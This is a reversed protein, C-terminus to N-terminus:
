KWRGIAIYGVTQRSQMVANQRVFKLKQIGKLDRVVNSLITMNEEGTSMGGLQVVPYDIFAVPFTFPNTLSSRYWEDSIKEDFDLYFYNKHYCILTGDAFKIYNGNSNSGTKCSIPYIKNGNQDKYQTIKDLAIM